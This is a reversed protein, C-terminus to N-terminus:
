LFYSDLHIGSSFAQLTVPSDEEIIGVDIDSAIVDGAYYELRMAEHSYVPVDSIYMSVTFPAAPPTTDTPPLAEGVLDIGISFKIKETPDLM